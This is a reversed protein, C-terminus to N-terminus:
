GLGAQKQWRLKRPRLWARREHAPRTHVVIFLRVTTVTLGHWSVVAPRLTAVTKWSGRFRLCCLRLGPTKSPTPFPAMTSRAEEGWAPRQLGSSSPPSPEEKQHQCPRCRPPRLQM